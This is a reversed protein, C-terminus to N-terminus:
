LYGTNPHRAKRQRVGDAFLQHFEWAPDLKVRYLNDGYKQWGKIVRGGVLIPRENPYSTYIVKHGNRGSDEPGFSITQDIFYSGERIMVVIDSQMDAIYRRVADRAKAPTAFPGDTRDANPASLKGSWSDSGDTAVYFDTRADDAQVAYTAALLISFIYTFLVTKM